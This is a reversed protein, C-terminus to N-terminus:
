GNGAGMVPTRGMIETESDWDLVWVNDEDPRRGYYVFDRDVFYGWDGLNGSACFLNRLWGFLGVADTDGDPWSVSIRFVMEAGGRRSGKVNSGPDVHYDLGSMDYGLRGTLDLQGANTIRGVQTGASTPMQVQPATTQVFPRVETYTQGKGPPAVAEGTYSVFVDNAVQGEITHVGGIVM